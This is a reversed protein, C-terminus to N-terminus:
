SILSNHFLSEVQMFGCINWSQEVYAIQNGAGRATGETSHCLSCRILIPHPRVHAARRMVLIGLLKRCGALIVKVPTIGTACFRSNSAQRKVESKAAPGRKIVVAVSRRVKRVYYFSGLESYLVPVFQRPLNNVYEGELVHTPLVPRFCGVCVAFAVSQRGRHDVNIGVLGEVVLCFLIQIRM